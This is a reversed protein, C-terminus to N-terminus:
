IAPTCWVPSGYRTKIVAGACHPLEIGGDSRKTVGGTKILVAVENSSYFSVPEMDMNVVTYIVDSGSARGFVLLGCLSYRCLYLEGDKYVTERTRLAGMERYFSLLEKNERGWPFPRRNFPDNYGEMGAEDGYYISPIGPITANIMYALKALAVGRAYEKKIMRLTALEANTKGEPSAGALATIIRETDHTSLINMTAHIVDPPYHEWENELARYLPSADGNRLYSILATRVPYNMVSDLQKGLFYRRRKGYAVKCSADEWVEGIILPERQSGRAAAVKEARSRLADIFDDSLEDVVDLRWGCAGMKMYKDIIGGEGTIYSLYSPEDSKVHPLIKIGWWCEYDDPWNYFNYWKYYPSSTFNYAGVEPYTGNKNFYRSDSGTHNFVGDLIVAIGRKEAERFLEALAEDGGFMSDVREYNATDYKHNSYAEFVPSLYICTVGLSRLYDLKEIVGWLSGGFFMNNEVHAGPYEGFQPIGYYWDDNMVAYDKPKVKHRSSKAFRDVFIHYIIGGYWSRPAPYARKYITLAFACCNYESPILVAGGDEGQVVALSSDDYATFEFRYYFLGVDSGFASAIDSAKIRCSFVDRGLHLRQWFASYVIPTGGYEPWVLMRVNRPSIARPIHVDFQLQADPTFAGHRTPYYSDDNKVNSKQILREILPRLCPSTTANFYM